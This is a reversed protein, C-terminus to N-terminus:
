IPLLNVLQNVPSLCFVNNSIQHRPAKLLMDLVEDNFAIPRGNNSKTQVARLHILKKKLDVQNWDLSMIEGERMGTHYAILLIRWLFPPATQEM